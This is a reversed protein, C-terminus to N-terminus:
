CTALTERGVLTVFVLINKADDMSAANCTQQVSAVLLLSEVLSRSTTTKPPPPSPRPPPLSPPCLSTSPPSSTPARASPPHRPLSVQKDRSTRGADSSKFYCHRLTPNFSWFLCGSPSKRHAELCASCCVEPSDASIQKIDHGVYDVNMEMSPCASLVGMTAMVVIAILWWTESM